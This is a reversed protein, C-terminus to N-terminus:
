KQQMTAFTMVKSRFWWRFATGDKGYVVEPAGGRQRMRYGHGPLRGNFKFALESM